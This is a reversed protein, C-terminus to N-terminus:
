EDEDEDEDEDEEEEESGELIDADEDRKMEIRIRGFGGPSMTALLTTSGARVESQLSTSSSSSCSRKKASARSAARRPGRGRTLIRAARHVYAERNQRSMLEPAADEEEEEGSKEVEEKGDSDSESDSDSGSGFSVHSDMSINLRQGAANPDAGDQAFVDDVHGEDIAQIREQLQRTRKLTGRRGLRQKALAEFVAEPKAASDRTTGKKSAAVTSSSSNSSYTPVSNGNWQAFCEAKTKGSVARAVHLWFSQKTPDLRAHASDLARRQAGTWGDADVTDGDDNDEDVGSRSAFAAAARRPRRGRRVSVPTVKKASKQKKAQKRKQASKLSKAPTKKAKVVTKAKKKKTKKVTKGHAKLGSKVKAKVKAKLKPSKLKLLPPPPPEAKKQEDLHAHHCSDCLLHPPPGALEVDRPADRWLTTTTTGCQACRRSQRSRSRRSGQIIDVARPASVKVKSPATKVKVKKKVKKKQQQLAAKQKKAAAKPPGTCSPCFWDGKPVGSRKLAAVCRTHYAKPCGDCCILNGGKTCMACADDNEEESDDSAPLQVKKGKSKSGSKKTAQPKTKMKKKAAVAAASVKAQAKVRAAAKRKKTLPKAKKKGKASKTKKSLAQKVASSSSSTSSRRPKQKRPPPPTVSHLQLNLLSCVTTARPQVAFPQSPSKQVRQLDSQLHDMSGVNVESVGSASTSIRENRWFQLPPLSARGSRTSQLSARMDALLLTSGAQVEGDERKPARKPKQKQKQKPSASASRRTKTRKAAPSARVSATLTLAAAASPAKRKTSRAAPPPMATAAASSSSSASVPPAGHRHMATSAAAALGGALPSRQFLQDFQKAITARADVTLPVEAASTPAARGANPRARDNYHFVANGNRPVMPMPSRLVAPDRIRYISGTRLADM